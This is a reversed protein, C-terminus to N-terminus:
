TSAFRQFDMVADDLDGETRRRYGCLFIKGCHARRHRAESQHLWALAANFAGARTHPAAVNAGMSEDARDSWRM